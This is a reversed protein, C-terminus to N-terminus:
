PYPSYSSKPSWVDRVYSDLIARAAERERVEKVRGALADFIRVFAGLADLTEQTISKRSAARDATGTAHSKELFSLRDEDSRPAQYAPM